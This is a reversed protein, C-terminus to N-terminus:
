ACCYAHAWALVEREISESVQHYRERNCENSLLAVTYFASAYAAMMRALLVKKVRKQGYTDGQPVSCVDLWVYLCKTVGIAEVLAQEQWKSMNIWTGHGGESQSQCIQTSTPKWRYSVAMTDEMRLMTAKYKHIDGTYQEGRIHAQLARRLQKANVLLGFGVANTKELDEISALQDQSGVLAVMLMVRVLWLAISLNSSSVEVAFAYMNAVLLVLRRYRLSQQCQLMRMKTLSPLQWARRDCFLSAASAPLSCIQLALTRIASWLNRLGICWLTLGIEVFILVLM